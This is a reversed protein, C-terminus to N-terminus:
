LKEGYELFVSIHFTSIAACKKGRKAAFTEASSSFHSLTQFLIGYLKVLPNAPHYRQLTMLFIDSTQHIIDSTSDLLCGFMM